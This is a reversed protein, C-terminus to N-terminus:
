PAAGQRKSSEQARKGGRLIIGLPWISKFIVKKTGLSEIIKTKRKEMTFM